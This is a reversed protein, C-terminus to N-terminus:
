VDCAFAFRYVVPVCVLTSNEVSFCRTSLMVLRSRIGAISSCLLGGQYLARRAVSEREARALHGRLPSVVLSGISPIRPRESGLAGSSLSNLVLLPTTPLPLNCLRLTQTHHTFPPYLPLGPCIEEPPPYVASVSLDFSSAARNPPTHVM